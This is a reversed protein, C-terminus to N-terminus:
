RRCAPCSCYVRLMAVPADAASRRDNQDVTVLPEERLSAAVGENSRKQSNVFHKGGHVLHIQRSDRLHRRLSCSSKRRERAAPFQLVHLAHRDARKLSVVDDSRLLRIGHYWPGVSNSCRSVTGSGSFSERFTKAEPASTIDSAVNRPKAPRMAVTENM